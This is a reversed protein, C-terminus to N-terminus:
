LRALLEVASARRELLSTPNAAPLRQNLRQKTGSLDLANIRGDATIDAFVGYAGAGSGPSALSRNLRRKVDSLDLANVAGGAGARDADGTLVSVRFLFDGGATGNGSPFADAGNNWEGDLFPGNGAGRVGDPSDANLDLLLKDNAVPEALTWTATRSAADFAFNSFAYAERNVGRVALDAQEVAVAQSFRVSIQNVGAWPLTALQGAGGPVALGLAGAGASNGPLADRFAPQWGTGNVFVNTVAPAPNPGGPVTLTVDNGDGGVYSIRLPITNNVVFISGEPRGAFTGVVPDTGDNDVIVFSFGPPPFLGQLMRVLLTSNTLDITGNVRLQDYSAGATPGNLDLSLTSGQSLTAAGAATLAGTAINSTPSVIGGSGATLGAASGDGALTAGRVDVDGVDSRLVLSGDAVAIDFTKAWDGGDIEMVGSGTKRLTGAGTVNASVILERGGPGGDVTFTRTPGTGIDLNGAVRAASVAGINTSTANLDGALTLRGAGTEILSGQLTIPGFRDNFENLDLVGSARVTVGANDPVQDSAAWEITDLPLTDGSLVDDGVSIARSVAAVGPSKALRVRGSNVLTPGTYTNPTTGSLALTGPGAKALGATGGIAANITLTTPVDIIPGSSGVTFTRVATSGLALNGTISPQLATLRTLLFRNATVDTTLTLVGAGTNVDGGALSLPGLVEDNGNLDLLGVGRVSVAAANPIQNDALLRVVDAGDGDLGGITLDGAVANVGAPKNFALTGGEVTTLGTNTNALTGAFTVTGPGTKTVAGAGQLRAVTFGSTPGADFVPNGVVNILAEWSSTFGVNPLADLTGAVTLSENFSVNGSGSRPGFTLRAGPNVLTNGLAGTAGLASPGRAVLRGESVTTSGQYDNVGSFTLDGPGAKTLRFSSGGSIDGSVTLTGGSVGVTTAAALTIDGSWTNNGGVNELAGAAGTGTGGVTLRENVTGADDLRLAAGSAVTTAGGGGGLGAPKQLVLVGQNVNTAGTYTNAGAGGVTLTGAGTRTLGGAGSIVGNIAVNGAGAVTLLSGGNNINGTITLTGSTSGITSPGALTINGGYTNGGSVNLLSGAGAGPGAGSLTLRESPVAIGGQLQLVSGAAVTTGNATGGLATSKRINLAGANVTTAGTYTNAATGSLTLTGAGSKTLGGGGTIAGSFEMNGPGGGTVTFGNTDISGDVTLTGASSFILTDSGARLNGDWQNNGSVNRLAGTNGVGSGNLVTTGSATVTTTGQISLAAGSSVTFPGTSANEQFNLVGAEVLGGGFNSSAALALTGAGQKVISDGGTLGDNLTLVSGAPEVVISTGLRNLDVLGDWELSADARLAGRDDFGTGGIHLIENGGDAGAGLELTAVNTVSTDGSLSGLAEPHDVRVSGANVNFAGDFDPNASPMVLTGTGAKNIPGNGDVLSGFTLTTQDAVTVSTGSNNLHVAANFTNTAGVPANSVTLGDGTFTIVSPVPNDGPTLSSSINYGAGRITLTVLDIEGLDNVSTKNAANAPFDVIGDIEPTRENQWNGPESWLSNVAGTWTATLLLRGELREVGPAAVRQRRILHHASTGVGARRPRRVNRGWM